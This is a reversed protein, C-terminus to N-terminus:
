VRWGACYRIHLSAPVRRRNRIRSWAGPRTRRLLARRGPAPQPFSPAEDVLGRLATGRERFATPSGVVFLTHAAIGFALQDRYSRHHM